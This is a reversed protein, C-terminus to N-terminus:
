GVGDRVENRTKEISAAKEAMMRRKSYPQLYIVYISM